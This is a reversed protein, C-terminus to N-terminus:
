SRSIVEQYWASFKESKKSEVGLLNIPEKKEQVQKVPKSQKEKVEVKEIIKTLNM